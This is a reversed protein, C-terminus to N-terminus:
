VYFVNLFIGEKHKHEDLILMRNISMILLTLQLLSAIKSSM